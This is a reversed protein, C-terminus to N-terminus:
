ERDRRADEQRREVHGAYAGKLKTREPSDASGPRRNDEGAFEEADEM